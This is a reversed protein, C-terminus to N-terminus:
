WFHDAGCGRHQGENFAKTFDRNNHRESWFAVNFSKIELSVPNVRRIEAEDSSASFSTATLQKHGATGFKYVIERKENM